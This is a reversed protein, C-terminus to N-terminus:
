SWITTERALIKAIVADSGDICIVAGGLMEVIQTIVVYETCPQVMATLSRVGYASRAALSVSQTKLSM